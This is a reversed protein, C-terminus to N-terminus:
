QTNTYAEETPNMKSYQLYTKRLQLPLVLEDMKNICDGVLHIKKTSDSRESM